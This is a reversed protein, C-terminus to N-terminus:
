VFMQQMFGQKLLNLKNTAEKVSSIESDVLSLFEAIKEQEEICPVPVQFGNILKLNLGGRGGGGDSILRLNSYQTSLYHYLFESSLAENPEVAAISQNSCLAIKTLAVKGRTSGQGALAILVSNPKIMKTSSNRYGEETIRKETSTVIEQSIEGSSLWPITGNEWYEANRTSPTGGAFCKCLNAIKEYKWAPFEGDGRDKFRLEQNFIKRKMEKRFKELTELRLESLSIMEDITSFFAAIKEQEREEPVTVLINSVRGQSINYRSIGQAERYFIRRYKPSRLLYTLFRPNVRSKDRLRFGFCFSNLYVSDEYPWLSCLGVEDPTESSQTFVIDGKLVRNQKEGCKISVNDTGSRKAVFNKYVNMYTIYEDSGKNFDESKKGSLGGYFVGLDGLTDSWTKGKCSMFRMKSESM